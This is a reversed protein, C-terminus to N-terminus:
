SCMCFAYCVVCMRLLTLIKKKLTYFICIYVKCKHLIYVAFFFPCLLYVIRKQIIKPANQKVWNYKFRYLFVSVPFCIVQQALTICAFAISKISSKKHLNHGFSLKLLLNINVNLNLYVQTVSHVM